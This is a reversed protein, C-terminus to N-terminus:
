HPWNTGVSFQFMYSIGKVSCFLVVSFFIFSFLLCAYEILKVNKCPSSVNRHLPSSQEGLIELGPLCIDLSIGLM